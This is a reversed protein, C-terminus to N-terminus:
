KFVGSDFAVLRSYCTHLPYDSENPYRKLGNFASKFRSDACKQSQNDRVIQETGNVLKRCYESIMM